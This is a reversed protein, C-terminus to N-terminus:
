KPLIYFTINVINTDLKKNSAGTNASAIVSDTIITRAWLQDFLLSDSGIYTLATDNAINNGGLTDTSILYSIGTAKDRSYLYIFAMLSDNAGTARTISNLRPVLVFKRSSLALTDSYFTDTEVTDTSDCVQYITSGSAGRVNVVKYAGGFALSAGLCLVLLLILRKM